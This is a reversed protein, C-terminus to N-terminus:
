PPKVEQQTGPICYTIFYNFYKIYDPDGRLCYIIYCM